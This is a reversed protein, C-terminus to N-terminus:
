KASFSQSNQLTSLKKGHQRKGTSASRLIDKETLLEQWLLTCEWKQVNATSITESARSRDGPDIDKAVGVVHEDVFEIAGEKVEVFKDAPVGCQPCKEPPNPGEHTYGCVSCTWKM